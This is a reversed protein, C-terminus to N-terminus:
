DSSADDCCRFGTETGSYHHDHALEMARCHNRGPQWYAGKLGSQGGSAAVHEELNGSLDLVGYPSKCHPHAGAPSRMDKLKGTADVLDVKDANCASPDRSHGYPYPQMADGECALTWEEATCLRKGSEACIEKARQYSVHNMPLSEGPATYETRDICFRLRKPQSKCRSPQAYELCRYYQYPGPPDAYRLCRQIVDACYEGEVLVANAGCVSAAEARSESALSRTAALIVPSAAPRTTRDPSEETVLQREALGAGTDDCTMLLLGAVMSSFVECRLIFSSKAISSVTPIAL